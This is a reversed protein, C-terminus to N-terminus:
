RVVLAAAFEPRLAAGFDKWPVEVFWEGRGMNFQEGDIMFVLSAKTLSWDDIRTVANIQDSEVKIDPFAEKVLARAAKAIVPKWSAGAFIDTVTVPGARTVWWNRYQLDVMPHAAMQEYSIIKESVSVISPAPVVTEYIRATTDGNCNDQDGTPCLPTGDPLETTEGVGEVWVKEVWQNYAKVGSANGLLFMPRSADSLRLFQLGGLTVHIGQLVKLRKRMNDALAAPTPPRLALWERQSRQLAPRWIDDLSFKDASFAAAIEEDLKGLTPHTCIAKEIHSTAKACPFSAAHATNTLLIALVAILLKM